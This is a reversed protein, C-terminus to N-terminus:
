YDWWPRGGQRKWPGRRRVRSLAESAGPFGKSAARGYWEGAIDADKAWGCGLEYIMGMWFMADVDGHLARQWTAYAFREESFTNPRRGVWPPAMSWPPWLPTLPTLQPSIMQWREAAHADHEGCVAIPEKGSQDFLEGIAPAADTERGSAICELCLEGDTGLQEALELARGLLEACHRLAFPSAADSLIGLALHVQRFAWYSIEPVLRTTNRELVGKAGEGKEERVLDLAKTLSALAKRRGGMKTNVSQALTSMPYDTDAAHGRGLGIM